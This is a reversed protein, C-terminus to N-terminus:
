NNWMILAGSDKKRARKEEMERRKSGNLVAEMGGDDEEMIKVMMQCFEGFSIEGSGDDDVAEVMARLADRSRHLGLEEVLTGLEDADIEGSGDADFEDFASRFLEKMEPSLWAHEAAKREAALQILDDIEGEKYFFRNEQQSFMVTGYPEDWGMEIDELDEPGRLEVGLMQCFEEFSVEGSGDDDVARVMAALQADTRVLGLEHVLDGLEAADIEGSGDADYHDFHEKLEACAEEGMTAAGDIMGRLRRVEQLITEGRPSVVDSADLPQLIEDHVVRMVTPDPVTLSAAAGM